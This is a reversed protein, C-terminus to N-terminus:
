CVKKLFFDTTLYRQVYGGKGAEDSVVAIEYFEFQAEWGTRIYLGRISGANEIHVTYLNYLEVIDGAEPQVYDLYEVGKDTV